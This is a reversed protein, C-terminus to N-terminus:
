KSSTCRQVVQCLVLQTGADRAYVGFPISYETSRVTNRFWAALTTYKNANTVEVPVHARLM